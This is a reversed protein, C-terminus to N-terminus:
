SSAGAFLSPQHFREPRETANEIRWAHFLEQELWAPVAAPAPATRRLRESWQRECWEYSPGESGMREFTATLARHAGWVCGIVSRDTRRIRWVGGEHGTEIVIPVPADLVEVTLSPWINRLSSLSADSYAVTVSERGPATWAATVDYKRSM